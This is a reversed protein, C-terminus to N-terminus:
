VCYQSHGHYLKGYHRTTLKQVLLAILPLRQARTRNPNTAERELSVDPMRIADLVNTTLRRGVIPPNHRM